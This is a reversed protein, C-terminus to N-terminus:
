TCRARCAAPARRSTWTRRPRRMKSCAPHMRCVSNHQQALQRLAYACLRLTCSHSHEFLHAAQTCAVHSVEFCGCTHWRSTAAYKCRTHVSCRLPSFPVPQLSSPQM